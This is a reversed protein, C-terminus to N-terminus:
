NLTEYLHISEKPVLRQLLYYKVEANRLYLLDRDTENDEAIGTKTPYVSLKVAGCSRALKILTDLRDLSSGKIATSGKRYEVPMFEFQDGLTGCTNDLFDIRVRNAVTVNTVKPQETDTTAPPRASANAPSTSGSTSESESALISGQGSGSGPASVVYTEPADVSESREPDSEITEQVAGQQDRIDQDSDARSQITIRGEKVNELQQERLKLLAIVDSRRVDKSELLERRVHAIAERDDASIGQKELEAQIETSLRKALVEEEFILRGSKQNKYKSDAASEGRALKARKAAEKIKDKYLKQEALMAEHSEHYTNKSNLLYESRSITSFIHGGLGGFVVAFTLWLAVTCFLFAM